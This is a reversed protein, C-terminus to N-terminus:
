LRGTSTWGDMAGENVRSRAWGHAAPPERAQDYCSERGPRVGASQWPGMSRLAEENEAAPSQNPTRLSQRRRRLLAEASWFPPARWAREKLRRAHSRGPRCGGGPSTGGDLSIELTLFDLNQEIEWWPLVIAGLCLAAM